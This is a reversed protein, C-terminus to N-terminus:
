SFNSATINQTIFCFLNFNHEIACAVDFPQKVVYPYKSSAIVETDVLVQKM